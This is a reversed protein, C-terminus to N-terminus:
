NRRLREVTSSLQQGFSLESEVEITFIEIMVQEFDLVEGLLRFASVSVEKFLIDSRDPLKAQIMRAVRIGIGDDAIIPNDLALVVDVHDVM